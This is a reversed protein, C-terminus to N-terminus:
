VRQVNAVHALFLNAPVFLSPMYLISNYRIPEFNMCMSVDLIKNSLMILYVPVTRVVVFAIIVWYM